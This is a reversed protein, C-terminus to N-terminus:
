PPGPTFGPRPPAGVAADLRYGVGVETLLYRPRGPEPELKRRLRSVHFRLGQADGIREQGWAQGILQRQTVVLGVRGALAGLLRYEIPTLHVPGGPGTATRTGLDVVLEGFRLQPPREPDRAVRRLASRVRALLEAAGFPKTVFDNAGADLAAVKEQELSRASLVLVPVSSERRLARIFGAGDGDPLGLDVVLLDPRHSRAEIMARALDGAEVTRYGNSQLLTCVLSRLAADDEVVLVSFLSRTM